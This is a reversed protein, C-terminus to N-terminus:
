KAKFEAPLPLTTNVRSTLFAIGVINIKINQKQIDAKAIGISAVANENTGENNTKLIREQIGSTKMTRFVEESKETPFKIPENTLSVLAIYEKPVDLQLTSTYESNNKLLSPADIKMDLDKAIGYKLSTREDIIYDSVIKWGDYFRKLYYVTTAKSEIYGSGKIYDVTSIADGAIDEQAVITAHDYNGNVSLLKINYKVNPYANWSQLALQKLKTKDFKDASSYNDDYFEMLKDINQLNSFKEYDAFFRKVETETSPYPSYTSVNGKMKLSPGFSFAPLAALILIASIFIINNFKKLHQMWNFSYLFM